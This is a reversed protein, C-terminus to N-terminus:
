MRRSSRSAKPYVKSLSAAPARGHVTPSGGAATRAGGGGGAGVATSEATLGGLGCREPRSPVLSIILSSCLMYPAKTNQGLQIKSCKLEGAHWRTPQTNPKPESLGFRRGTQAFWFTPVDGLLISGDGGLQGRAGPWVPDASSKNASHGHLEPELERRKEFRGAGVGASRCAASPNARGRWGACGSAGDATLACSAPGPLEVNVNRSM